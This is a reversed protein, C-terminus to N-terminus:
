CQNLVLQQQTLGKADKAMVRQAQRVSALICKKAGKCPQLSSLNMLM